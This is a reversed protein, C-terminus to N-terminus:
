REIASLAVSPPEIKRLLTLGDGFCFDLIQYNPNRKLEDLYYKVQHEYARDKGYVRGAVRVRTSDHFLVFGGLSLKSQFAQHDFRVQEFSHFGDLFLLGIENLAQYAETKVFEQTTCLHHAVNHVGFYGFHRNIREPFKWFDDVHSPDIFIVNGNASNESLARGLILPVFGRYSGIVVAVRPKVLRAIAYYLWGLGIDAEEPFQAHGMSCLEPNRLVLKVFEGISHDPAHPAAPM